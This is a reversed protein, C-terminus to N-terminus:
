KILKRYQVENGSEFRIINLGKNLKNAGIKVLNQGANLKKIETNVVKGAMDFSTVTWNANVSSSINISVENALAPNPYFEGVLQKQNENKVFITKSIVSSGDLDFMKLRYYSESESKKDLFSYSFQDKKNNGAVKGIGAFAHSDNSKQIEFHSFNTENSTNWNIENGSPTSKANFSVLRVPLVCSEVIMDITSNVTVLTTICIDSLAVVVEVKYSYNGPETVTITPSQITNSTSFSSTGPGATQTWLFTPTGGVFGDLAANLTFTNFCVTNGEQSNNEVVVVPDIQITGGNAILTAFTICAGGGTCVAYQVDGIWIEDNNNCSGGLAIVGDLTTNEIVISTNQALYLQISSGNIWAIQGGNQIIIKNVGGPITLDVDMTLVVGSPITMTGTCGSYTALFDSANISTTVTCDAKAKSFGFTFLVAFLLTKLLLSHKSSTYNGSCNSTYIHKM